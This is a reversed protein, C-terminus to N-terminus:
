QKKRPPYLHNVIAKVSYGLVGNLLFFAIQVWAAVKAFFVSLVLLIFAIAFVTLMFYFLIRALRIQQLIQLTKLQKDTLSPIQDSM